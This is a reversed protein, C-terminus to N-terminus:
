AGNRGTYLIRCFIGFNTYLSYELVGVCTMLLLLNSFYPFGFSEVVLWVVVSTPFAESSRLLTPFDGIDQILDGLVGM